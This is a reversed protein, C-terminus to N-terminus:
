CKGRNNFNWKNKEKFLTIFEKKINNLTYFGGVRLNIDSYLKDVGIGKIIYLCYGNKYYDNKDMNALYKGFKICTEISSPLYIRDPHSSLKSGSKPTLGNKLIKNKFKLPSAHYLVKPIKKIERDYKAEIFVNDCTMHKIDKENLLDIDIQDSGNFSSSIFYGLNNILPIYKGLNSNMGEISIDGDEYKKITLEPFKKNLIRVTTETSQSYILGEKIPIKGNKTNKIFLNYIYEDSYVSNNGNVTNNIYDNYELVFKFKSM